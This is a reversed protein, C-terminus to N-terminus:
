SMSLVGNFFGGPLGGGDQPSSNCISLSTQMNGWGAPSPYTSSYGAFTCSNLTLYHWQLLVLEGSLNDPLKLRFCYLTGATDKIAQGLPAIYAHYPYDIDKPVGYLISGVCVQSSVREFL